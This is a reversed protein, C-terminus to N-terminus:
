ANRLDRSVLFHMPVASIMILVLSAFAARTYFGESTTSWIRVALTEFETPRLLLTAPLEKMTTLFVLGAGILVGKGILPLTIRRFTKLPSHGLSRSAEELNPSVERLATETPGLAQPLFMTVYAAFLLPLTQYLPLVLTVGVLLLALGVTLHPLASVTWAAAELIEGLRSRYRTVLVAIPIAIAAIALAAGISVSISRGMEAWIAVTERGAVTGRIWWATLVAVPVVVTTAVLLSLFTLAGIRRSGSLLHLRTPRVVRGKRESRPPRTSRELGLIALAMLLLVAALLTAPRRDVRGAYQLFIARTFTDYGLLSVAGFDAMTYLGVLLASSRLAPGVQPLLVTRLRKLRGAGLARAIEDLAPDIGRLAPVLSLHVYPFTSVVLALVTGLLGRPISLSNGGLAVVIGSLIGQRGTGTLLVLALVYSPIVLPLAVVTSWLRAGPVDTRSTVWATGFGIVVAGVVVLGTLLLTNLALEGLRGAPLVGQWGGALAQWLLYGFPFLLPVIALTAVGVLGLPAQRGLKPLVGGAVATSL